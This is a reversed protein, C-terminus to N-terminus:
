QLFDGKPNSSFKIISFKDHKSYIVRDIIGDLKIQIKMGSFGQRQKTKDNKSVNIFTQCQRRVCFSLLEVIELIYNLTPRSFYKM